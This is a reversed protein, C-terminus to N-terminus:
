IPQRTYAAFLYSISASALQRTPVQGRRELGLVRRCIVVDRLQLRLRESAIERVLQDDVADGLEVLKQVDHGLGVLELPADPYILVRAHVLALGLASVALAGVAGLGALADRRESGARAVTHEYVGVHARRGHRGHRVRELPGTSWGSYSTFSNIPCPVLALKILTSPNLLM